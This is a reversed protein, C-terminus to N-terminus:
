LVDRSSLIVEDQPAAGEDNMPAADRLIPSLSPARKWGELRESRESRLTLGTDNRPIPIRM